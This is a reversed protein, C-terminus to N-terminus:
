FIKPAITIDCCCTSIPSHPVASCARMLYEISQTLTVETIEEGLDPKPPLWFNPFDLEWSAKREGEYITVTVNPDEAIAKELLGYAELHYKPDQILQDKFEPDAWAKTILNRASNKFQEENM